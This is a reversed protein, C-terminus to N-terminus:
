KKNIDLETGGLDRLTRLQQLEVMGLPGTVRRGGPM